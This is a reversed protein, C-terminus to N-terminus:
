DVGGEGPTFYITGGTAPTTSVVVAINIKGAGSPPAAFLRVTPATGNFVIPCDTATATITTSSEQSIRIYAITGATAGVATVLMSTASPNNFVINQSTASGAGVSVLQTFGAVSVKVDIEFPTFTAM